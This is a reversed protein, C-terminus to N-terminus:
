KLVRRATIFSEDLYKSYIPSEPDLSNYAVGGNSAGSHIMEAGSLAITVHRPFFLLDGARIDERRIDQGSRIQDKTDRPLPIGFRKMIIQTFGSCDIGFFTRGGWLYPAGLFKEAEMTLGDAKSSYEKSIDDPGSLYSRNIYVDGYRESSIKLFDGQNTGFLQCGYPISTLRRSVSDPKEFASALNSVVIFPGQGDFSDHETLFQEAIWGEYQDWARIRCYEKEEELIDVLENFLAQSTRESHFQPQRRIDTVNINIRATL